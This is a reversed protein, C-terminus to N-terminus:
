LSILRENWYLKLCIFDHHFVIANTKKHMFEKQKNQCIQGLM